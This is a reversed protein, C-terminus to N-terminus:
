AHHKGGISYAILKTNAPLYLPHKPNGAKTLGFCFIRNQYRAIIHDKVIKAAPIEPHNGWCAVIIDTSSRAMTALTIINNDDNWASDPVQKPDTSVYACLNFIRFGQYGLAETFAILRRITPDDKQADATSPNLGVFNILGGYYGFNFWDRRLEYRFKRDDSFRASRNISGPAM